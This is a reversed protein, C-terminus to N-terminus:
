AAGAGPLLLAMCHIDEAEGDLVRGSRKTGERVFGSREYLAIAARNSAVVELEIRTLGAARAARLTEGLLARGLGRGRYGPLLGMGLVASHRFGELPNPSVDCWGVVQAGSLAVFQIFGPVAVFARVQELPPAKLFGLWRRERAVADLCRRTSEADGRSSRRVVVDASPSAREAERPPPAWRRRVARTDPQGVREWSVWLAREVSLRFLPDTPQFAAFPIAAHVAAREDAAEVEHAEGALQFEEDSAGLFAHLAYRGGARLDRAKPTRSGASLYLQAGCFIPCVPALHVGGRAGVTALFGIAVGDAGVLLRRGAHAFDPADRELEAWSAV